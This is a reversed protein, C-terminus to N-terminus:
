SLENGFGVIAEASKGGLPPVEGPLLMKRGGIAAADVQYACERAPKRVNCHHAQKDLKDLRMHSEQEDTGPKAPQSGETYVERYVV